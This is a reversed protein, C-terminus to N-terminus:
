IAKRGYALDIMVANAPHYVPVDFQNTELRLFDRTQKPQDFFVQSQPCLSYVTEGKLTAKHDVDSKFLVMLIDLQFM